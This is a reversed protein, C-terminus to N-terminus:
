KAMGKYRIKGEKFLGRLVDLKESILEGTQLDIFEVLVYQPHYWVGDVIFDRKSSSFKLAPIPNMAPYM